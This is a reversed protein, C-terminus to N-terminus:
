DKCKPPRKRSTRSCLIGTTLLTAHSKSPTSLPLFNARRLRGLGLPTQRCAGRKKTKKQLVRPNAEIMDLAM